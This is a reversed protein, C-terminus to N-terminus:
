STLYDPSVAVLMRLANETLAPYTERKWQEDATAMAAKAYRELSARTTRSLPTHWFRAARSVLAASKGSRKADDDLARSDCIEAAMEWRARFTATDLWRTDDWGSVNPPEFLMQGAQDCLWSWADTDIGRGVARLMGAAQVVPPKVMRRDPDYLHPHRLIADLLPRVQRGHAVYMRELAKATGRPPPTPIFYGWLKTVLFSPHKRHRVSLRVADRWDFRGRRGHIRKVGNDHSPVDYRFDHPGQGESWEYRFGTLARAMERVDRETYGRGAGLTFLEMLERAYNENVDGKHNDVGDLWLLMAPDKTIAIALSEFSGLAHRRLLANQRLMLGQTAASKSTAFWDHWVLTMREVLQAESRVMRDLWWCHDHGWADRPALPHGDQDHPRPGKLRHVRPHTLSHVARDLGHKALREAQGPRPGFGARWLLRRAQDPGFPGRYRPVRSV